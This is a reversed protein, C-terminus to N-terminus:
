VDNIFVGVGCCAGCRATMADLGSHTIDYYQHGPPFCTSQDARM